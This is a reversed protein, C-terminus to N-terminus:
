WGERLRPLDTVGTLGACSRNGRDAPDDDPIKEPDPYIESREDHVGRGSISGPAPEGRMEALAAEDVPGYGSVV